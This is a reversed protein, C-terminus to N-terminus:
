TEGNKNLKLSAAHAALKRLTTVGEQDLADWYKPPISNRLRWDRPIHMPVNLRKAIEKDPLAIPYQM